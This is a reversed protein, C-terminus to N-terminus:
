IVSPVRMHSKKLALLLVFKISLAFRQASAVTFAFFREMSLLVLHYSTSYKAHLKGSRPTATSKSASKTSAMSKLSKARSTTVAFSHSAILIALPILLFAKFAVFM